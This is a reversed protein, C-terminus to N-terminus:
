QSTEEAIQTKKNLNLYRKRGHNYGMNFATKYVDKMEQTVEKEIKKLGTIWREMSVNRANPMHRGYHKFEQVAGRVGAKFKSVM